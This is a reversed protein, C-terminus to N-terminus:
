GHITKEFISQIESLVKDANKIRKVQDTMPSLLIALEEKLKSFNERDGKKLYLRVVNEQGNLGVFLETTKLDRVNEPIDSNSIIDTAKMRVSYIQMLFEAFAESREQRLWKAYETRRALWAGSFSGLLAFLGAVVAVILPINKEM